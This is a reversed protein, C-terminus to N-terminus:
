QRYPTHEVQISRRESKVYRSKACADNAVNTQRHQMSVRTIIAADEQQVALDDADPGLDSNGRSSSSKESWKSDRETKSQCM